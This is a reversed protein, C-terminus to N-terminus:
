PLFVGTVDGHQRFRADGQVMIPFTLEEVKTATLPHSFTPASEVRGGGGWGGGPILTLQDM